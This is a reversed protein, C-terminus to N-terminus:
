LQPLPEEVHTSPASEQRAPVAEESGFVIVLDEITAVKESAVSAKCSFVALPIRVKKSTVELTIVDGPGAKRFFHASEISGFLLEKKEMYPQLEPDTQSVLWLCALQGMAEFVISAPFIPNGPFHGELFFEDGTVRYEGRIVDDTIEASDIFLFPPQHPITLLIQERSLRTSQHHSTGNRSPSLSSKEAVFTKVQGLTRINVLEENEIRVGLAEELSLVLELMTLSDIALDEILRTNEDLTELKAPNESSMYREIVGYVITPVLEKKRTQRFSIISDVTEPSFRKFSTRIHAVEVESLQESMGQM